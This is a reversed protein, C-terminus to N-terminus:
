REKLLKNRKERKKMREVKKAHMKAAMREYREKEAKIERRRKLDAIKQKRASEKEEQLEKLREKYQQEQLKKLEREKFSNRKAVGLTKVRFADKKIKWDKGNVRSGESKDKPALPDIYKKPIEDYRLNSTTSM